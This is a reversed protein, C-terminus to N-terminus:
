KTRDALFSALQTHGGSRALDFPTKGDHDRVKPDAGKALLTSCTQEHGFMAAWHLATRGTEDRLNVDTGQALLQEIEASGAEAAAHHLAPLNEPVTLTATHVEPLV